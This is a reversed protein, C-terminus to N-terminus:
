NNSPNGDYVSHLLAFTKNNININHRFVNVPITETNVGNCTISTLTIDLSMSLYLKQILAM